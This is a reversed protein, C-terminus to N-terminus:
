TGRCEFCGRNACVVSVRYLNFLRTLVLKKLIKKNIASRENMNTANITKRLYPGLQNIGNVYTSRLVTVISPNRLGAPNERLSIYHRLSRPLSNNIFEWSLQTLGLLHEDRIALLKYRKLLPEVHVKGTSLLRVIKKHKINLKKMLMGKTGGWTTIGYLLHPRVFANYIALKGKTNLLKRHKYLLYSGKSIKNIVKNVHYKWNLKQDIEIGLMNFSKEEHSEGCKIIPVGNLNLNVNKDNGFVIVRSKDPHITLGNATFWDYIIKLERNGRDNLEEVTKGTIIITTDDAFLLTLLSTISPLDHIYVKFFTPGLITGQGVGMEILTLGSKSLRIQVSQKRNKLYSEILKLSIQNMGLHRFKNILISHKCCDFAKSVDIFVAAILLKDQKAKEIELLMHQVTHITNKGKSFGYQTQPILDLEIIKENLQNNIIKEWVKSISPLLSIPRYNEVLRKDGKKHIPVLKAIKLCDPFEGDRISKNILILLPKTLERNCFKLMKNSIEDFGSSKKPKLSLITKSISEENVLNFGWQLNNLELYREHENPTFNINGALITAANRYYESFTNAIIKDDTIEKTNVLLSTLESNSEKIKVTNNLIKWIKSSDGSAQQLKDHLFMNKQNTIRSKYMKLELNYTTIHIGKRQKAKAALNKLRNRFTLLETTMWEHIPDRRKNIPRTILPFSVLYTQKLKDILIQTGESASKHELEDWHCDALQRKFIQLTDENIKRYSIYNKVIPMDYTIKTKIAFHDAIQIDTIESVAKLDRNILTHDICTGSVLRTVGTILNKLNLENIFIVYERNLSTQKLTNVNMDGVIVVNMNNSNLVWNKIPELLLDRNPPRYCNLLTLKSNGLKLTIGVSEIEGEVFPTQVSNYIIGKRVYIAVGGGRKNVRVKTVPKDFGDIELIDERRLGWVEQCCIIDATILESTILLDFNSKLSRVNM